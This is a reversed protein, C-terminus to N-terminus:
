ADVVDEPTVDLGDDALGQFLVSVASVLAGAIESPVDPPEEAVLRDLGARGAGAVPDPLEGLAVPRYHRTRCRHRGDCENESRHKGAPQGSCRGSLADASPAGLGGGIGLALLCFALGGVGTGGHLDEDTHEVAVGTLTKGTRALGVAGFREEEARLAGEVREQAFVLVGRM